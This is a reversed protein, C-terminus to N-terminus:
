RGRGEPRCGAQWGPRVGFPLDANGLLEADDVQQEVHRLLLLQDLLV